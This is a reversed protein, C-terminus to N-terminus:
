EYCVNRDSWCFWVIDLPTDVVGVSGAVQTYLGVDGILIFIDELSALYPPNTKASRVLHHTFGDLLPEIGFVKKFEAYIAEKESKSWSKPKAESSM